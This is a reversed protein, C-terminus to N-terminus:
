NVEVIGLNSGYILDNTQSWFTQTKELVKPVNQRFWENKSVKKRVAMRWWLNQNTRVTSPHYLLDFALIPKSFNPKNELVKPVNRRFWGNKVSKKQAGKKVMLEPENKRYQFSVVFWIRSNTKLLKRKKSFKQYMEDSGGMKTMKESWM